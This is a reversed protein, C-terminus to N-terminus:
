GRTLKARGQFLGPDPPRSQAWFASTDSDSAARSSNEAGSNPSRVWSKKLSTQGGHRARALM